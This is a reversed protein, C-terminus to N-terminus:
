EIRHGDSIHYFEWELERWFNHCHFTLIVHIQLVPCVLHKWQSWCVQWFNHDSDWYCWIRNVFLLHLNTLHCNCCRCCQLHLPAQFFARLSKQYIKLNEKWIAEYESTFCSSFKVKCWFDSLAKNRVGRWIDDIGCSHCTTSNTKFSRSGLKWHLWSNMFNSSLSFHWPIRLRFALQSFCHLFSSLLKSVLWKKTLHCQCKTKNHYIKLCQGTM